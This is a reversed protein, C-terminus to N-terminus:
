IKRFGLHTYVVREGGDAPRTFIGLKKHYMASSGGQDCAMAHYCGAQLLVKGCEEMTLGQSHNPNRGDVVMLYAKDGQQNMGVITRPYPNFQTGDSKSISLQGNYLLDFRGWIINKIDSSFTKVIEQEKSYFIQNKDSFYIFPRRANDTNYILKGSAMYVGNWQGLPATVGPTTGAEGNVAVDVNFRKAFSSTLEKQDIVSDLVVQYQHLDIMAVYYVANPNNQRVRVIELGKEQLIIDAKATPNTPNLSLSDTLGKLETSTLSDGSSTNTVTLPENVQYSSNLIELDRLHNRYDMVVIASVNICIITSSIVFARKNEQSVPKKLMGFIKFVLLWLGILILIYLLVQFAIPFLFVRTLLALLDDLLVNITDGM